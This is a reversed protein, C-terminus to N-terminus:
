FKGFAARTGIFDMLNVTKLLTNLQTIEMTNEVVALEL